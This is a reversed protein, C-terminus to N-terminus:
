NSILSNKITMQLKNWIDTHIERILRQNHSKEAFYTDAICPVNDNKGDIEISRLTSYIMREPSICRCPYTRGDTDEMIINTCGDAKCGEGYSPIWIKHYTKFYWVATRSFQQVYESFEEETWRELDLYEIRIQKGSKQLMCLEESMRTLNEKTLCWDVTSIVPHKLFEMEDWLRAGMGANWRFFVRLRKKNHVIWTKMDQTLVTECLTPILIIDLGFDQELLWDGFQELLNWRVFSDGGILLIYMSEFGNRLAIEAMSQCSNELKTLDATRTSMNALPCLSCKEQQCYTFMVEYIFSKKADEILKNSCCGTGPVGIRVETNEERM